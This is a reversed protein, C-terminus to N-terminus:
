KPMSDQCRVGSVQFRIIGLVQFRFETLLFFFAGGCLFASIGARSLSAFISLVMIGLGFLLLLFLNGRKGGFLLLLKERLPLRAEKFNQTYYAMLMGLAPLAMMTMFGAYHNRNVFPGFPTGGHRLPFTWYIRGNWTYKQLIAFFAIMSGLVAFLTFVKKVADQERFTSILIFLFLFISCIHILEMRSAYPHVSLSSQGGAGAFAQMEQGLRERGPSLFATLSSPLPLIQLLGCLLFFGCLFLLIKERALWQLRDGSLIWFVSVFRPKTQHVL